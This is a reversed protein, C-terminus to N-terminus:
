RDTSRLVQLSGAVGTLYITTVRGEGLGVDALTAVTAGTGPDRFTITYNAAPQTFYASATRAPLASVLKTDGLFADYSGSDSVANVFRIRMEGPGTVRNDDPLALVQLAGPAGVVVLSTDRSMPFDGTLSAVTAGPTAVAEFSVTHVGSNQYGYGTVGPYPIEATIITGDYKGIIAGTQYAANIYRIATTSSPVPQHRLAGDVDLLLVAPLAQSGLTYFVLDVSSSVSFDLPGSDFAISSSGNPTARIRLTKQEFRLSTTSSGGSIGVFNPSLNNDL